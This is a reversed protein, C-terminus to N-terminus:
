LEIVEGPKWDPKLDWYWRGDELVVKRSGLEALRRKLAELREQLVGTDYLIIGHDLVDLLILPSEWLEKRTLFVPYPDPQLGKRRLEKYESSDRLVFLSSVFRRTPNFGDTEYVILLDIDSDPRAEGRAVSGFLAVALIAQEGFEQRLRELLLDLFVRYTGYGVGGL